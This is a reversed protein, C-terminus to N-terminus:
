RNTCHNRDNNKRFFVASIYLFLILPLAQGRWSRTRCKMTRRKLPLTIKVTGKKIIIIEYKLTHNQWYECLLFIDCINNEYRKMMDCARFISYTAQFGSVNPMWNQILLLLLLLLPALTCGNIEIYSCLNVDQKSYKLGFQQAHAGIKKWKSKENPANM